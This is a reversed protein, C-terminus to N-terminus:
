GQMQDTPRKMRRVHEIRKHAFEKVLGYNAFELERWLLHSQLEDPLIKVMLEIKEEDDLKRGGCEKWEKLHGEWTEVAM